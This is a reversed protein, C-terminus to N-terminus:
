YCRLHNVKLWYFKLTSTPIKRTVLSIQIISQFKSPLFTNPYFKEGLVEGFITEPYQVARHFSPTVLKYMLFRTKM